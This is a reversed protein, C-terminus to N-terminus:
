LGAFNNRQQGLLPETAYALATRVHLEAVGIATRCGTRIVAPPIYRGSQQPLDRAVYVHRRFVEDELLLM